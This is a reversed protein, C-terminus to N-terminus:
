HNRIYRFFRKGAPPSFLPVTTFQQIAQRNDEPTAPADPCPAAHATITVLPVTFLAAVIECAVEFCLKCPYQSFVTQLFVPHNFYEGRPTKEIGRFDRRGEP